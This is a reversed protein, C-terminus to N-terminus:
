PAGFDAPLSADDERRLERLRDWAGEYRLSPGCVADGPIPELYQEISASTM